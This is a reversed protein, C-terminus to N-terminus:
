EEVEVRKTHEEQCKSCMWDGDICLAYEDQIHEGCWACEPLRELKERMVDEHLLFDTYADGTRIM